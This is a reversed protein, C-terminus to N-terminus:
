LSVLEYLKTSQCGGVGVDDCTFDVEVVGLLFNGLRPCRALQAAFCGCSAAKTSCLLLALLADDQMVHIPLLLGPSQQTFYGFVRRLMCRLM